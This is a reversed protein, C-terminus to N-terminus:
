ILTTVFLVTGGSVIYLLLGEDEGTTNPCLLYEGGPEVNGLSYQTVEQGNNCIVINVDSVSRNFTVEVTRDERDYNVQAIPRQQPGRHPGHVIIPVGEDNDPSSTIVSATMSTPLAIMAMLGWKFVLQKMQNILILYRRCFYLSISYSAVKGHKKKV